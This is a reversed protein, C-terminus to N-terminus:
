SSIELPIKKQIWNAAKDLFTDKPKEQLLVESLLETIEQRDGDGIVLVVRGPFSFIEFHITEQGYKEEFWFRGIEDWYYLHDDIRIGYNSIQHTIREPPVSSLVYALFGISVAVAIPLFQGAFFLILSVLFIIAAITLYYQQDRKKFPRSAAEWTYIIEEPIPKPIGPFRDQRTAPATTAPAPTTAPTPTVAPEYSAAPEYGITPEYSATAPQPQIPQQVPQAPQVPQQVPPQQQDRLYKLYMEYDSPQAPQNSRDTM